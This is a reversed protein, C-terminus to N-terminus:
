PSPGSLATSLLLLVDHSLAPLVLDGVRAPSGVVM